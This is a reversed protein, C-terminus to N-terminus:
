VSRERHAVYITFGGERITLLFDANEDIRAESEKESEKIIAVRASASILSAQTSVGRYDGWIYYICQLLCFFLFNANLV